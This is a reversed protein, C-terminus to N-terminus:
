YANDPTGSSMSYTRSKRKYHPEGENKFNKESSPKVLTWVRPIISADFFQENNATRANLYLCEVVASHGRAKIVSECEREVAAAPRRVRFIMYTM